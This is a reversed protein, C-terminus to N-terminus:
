QGKKVASVLEAKQEDDLHQIEYAEAEGVLGVDRDFAELDNLLGLSHVELRVRTDKEDVLVFQYAMGM